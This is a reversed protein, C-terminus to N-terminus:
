EQEGRYPEPLLMYAVPMIYWAGGIVRGFDVCLGEDNEYTCLYRGDEPMRESVPIWRQEPKPTVSPIVAVYGIAAEVGKIQEAMFPYKEWAAILEKLDNLLRRRSVADECLEPQESELLADYSDSDDTLRARLGSEYMEKDHRQMWGTSQLHEIAQEDTIESRAIVRMDKENEIIDAIDRAVQSPDPRASPLDKIMDIVVNSSLTPEHWNKWAVEHLTKVGDIAAQRGILDGM